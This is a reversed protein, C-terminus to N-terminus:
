PLAVVDSGTGRRGICSRRKAKTDGSDGGRCGGGSSEDSAEAPATAAHGAGSSAGSGAGSQSKVKPRTEHYRACVNSHTHLACSSLGFLPPVLCACFHMTSSHTRTSKISGAQRGCRQGRRRWRQERRPKRGGRGSSGGGSGGGSPKSNQDWRKKENRSMASWRDPLARKNTEKSSLSRSGHSMLGLGFTLFSFRNTHTRTVGKGSCHAVRSSTSSRSSGPASRKITVRCM